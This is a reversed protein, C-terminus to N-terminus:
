LLKDWSLSISGGEQFLINDEWRVSSEARTHVTQSAAEVPGTGQEPSLKSTIEKLVQVETVWWEIYGKHTGKVSGKQVPPSLVPCLLAKLTGKEALM